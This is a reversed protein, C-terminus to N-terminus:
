SVRGRQRLAVDIDSLRHGRGTIGKVIDVAATVILDRRDGVDADAALVLMKFVAQTLEPDANGRAETDTKGRSGRPQDKEKPAKAQTSRRWRGLVVTPHSLAKRPEDADPDAVWALIAAENEACAIAASRVSKDILDFGALALARRIAAHYKHGRPQNAGAERVARNQLEALARGVALWDSFTDHKQLRAWAGRGAVVPDPPQVLEVVDDVPDPPQVPEVVAGVPKGPEDARPKRRRDLWVPLDLGDDPKGEAADIIHPSQM